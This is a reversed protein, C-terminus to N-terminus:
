GGDHHMIVNDNLTIDCSSNVGEFVLYVDESTENYSPKIFQKEYNLTSRFYDNGGDQGDINNWTHPLNIQVQTNNQNTFLWNDMLLIKQRM